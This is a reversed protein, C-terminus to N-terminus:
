PNGRARRKLLSSFESNGALVKGTKGDPGVLQRGRNAWEFIGGELVQVRAYGRKTLSDAVPYADTGIADYIVLSDDTNAPIGLSAPTDDRDMRKAGPLHSYAYEAAPRVDILVPKPGSPRGLWAALGDTDIRNISPYRKRLEDKTREWRWPLYALWLAIGIAILLIVVMIGFPTFRRGAGGTKM